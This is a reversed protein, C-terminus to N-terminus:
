EEPDYAYIVLYPKDWYAFFGAPVYGGKVEVDSEANARFGPPHNIGHRTLDTLQGEPIKFLRRIAGDDIHSQAIEHSPEAATGDTSYM